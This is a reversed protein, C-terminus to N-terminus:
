HNCINRENKTVNPERGYLRGPLETFNVLKDKLHVIMAKEKTTDLTVRYNKSIDVLSIINTVAQPNFWHTGLDPINCIQGTVLIVGNSRLELPQSSKQINTVCDPNCFITNTSNSDLLVLKSM